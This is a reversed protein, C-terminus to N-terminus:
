RLVSVVLHAVVVLAVLLTLWTIRRMRLDIKEFRPQLSEATAAVSVGAERVPEILQSAAQTFDLRAAAFAAEFTIRVSEFEDVVAQIRAEAQRHVEDLGSKARNVLADIRASLRSLEEDVVRRHEDIAARTEDVACGLREGADAVHSAAQQTFRKMQGPVAEIYHLIAEKYADLAQTAAGVRAHIAKERTEIAEHLPAAYASAIATLYANFEEAIASEALGVGDRYPDASPPPSSRTQMAKSRGTM